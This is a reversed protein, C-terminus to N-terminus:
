LITSYRRRDAAARLRWARGHGSRRDVAVSLHGIDHFRGRVWPSAARLNRQTPRSEASQRNDPDVSSTHVAGLWVVLPNMRLRTPLWGRRKSPLLRTLRSRYRYRNWLDNMGQTVSAVVAAAETDPEAPFYATACLLGACDVAYEAQVLLRRLTPTDLGAADGSEVKRRLDAIEEATYLDM